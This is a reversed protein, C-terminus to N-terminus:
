ADYGEGLIEAWESKLIASDTCIGLSYVLSLIAEGYVLSKPM